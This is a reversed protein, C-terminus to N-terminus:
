IASDLPMLSPEMHMNLATSGTNSWYYYAVLGMLFKLQYHSLAFTYEHIMIEIIRYKDETVNINLAPQM